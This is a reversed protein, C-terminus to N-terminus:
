DIKQVNQSNLYKQPQTIIKNINYQDKNIQQNNQESNKMMQGDKKDNGNKSSDFDYSFNQNALENVTQKKKPVAVQTQVNSSCNEM